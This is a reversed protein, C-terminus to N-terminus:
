RYVWFYGLVYGLPATVMACALVAVLNSQGLTQTAVHIALVSVVYSLASVTVYRAVQRGANSQSRFTFVRNAVFQFVMAIGYAGAAAVAASLGLELFFYLLAACLLTNAGGVIAYKAFLGAHSSLNERVSFSRNYRLLGPLFAGALSSFM